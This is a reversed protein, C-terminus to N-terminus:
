QMESCWILEHKIWTQNANSRLYADYWITRTWCLPLGPVFGLNFFFIVEMQLRHWECQNTCSNAVTPRPKLQLRCAKGAMLAVIPYDHNSFCSSLENVTVFYSVFVAFLIIFADIYMISIHLQIVFFIAFYSILDYIQKDTLNLINQAMLTNFLKVFNSTQTQTGIGM